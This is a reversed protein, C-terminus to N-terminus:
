LRLLGVMGYRVPHSIQDGLWRMTNCKCARSLLKMHECGLIGYMLPITFTMECDMSTEPLSRVQPELAGLECAAVRAEKEPGNKVAQLTGTPIEDQM